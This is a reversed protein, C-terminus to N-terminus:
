NKRKLFYYVFTYVTINVTIILLLIESFYIYKTSILFCILNYSNIVLTTFLHSSLNNKFKTNIKFKKYILHHLHDTDPEYTKNKISFRRIMSFLLEFCPYWLLVIIFYPSISSNIFSFNILFIGFFLSITYSGSDGLYIIGFSNLLIITFLIISLNILIENNLEFDNFNFFIISSVILFYTANNCNIGDIFNSGNMLVMLCFTVFLINILQNQLIEDVFNIRTFNIEINLYNVFCVIIMAQMLFRLSASNIKKLDSMLGILFILNLFLCIAFNKETLYYYNLFAIILFGGILYSRKKSSFKKHIESKIDVLINFKISVFLLTVSFLFHFIIFKVHM